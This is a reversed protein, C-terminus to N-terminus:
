EVPIVDVAVGLKPKRSGAIIGDVPPFSAAAYATVPSRTLALGFCVEQRVAPLLRCARM